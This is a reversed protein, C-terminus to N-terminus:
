LTEGYGAVICPQGATLLHTESPLCIPRILPSYTINTKLKLLAVDNTHSRNNYLPHILIEEVEFMEEGINQTIVNHKGAFM